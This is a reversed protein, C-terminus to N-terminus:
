IHGSFCSHWAAQSCNQIRGEKLPRTFWELLVLNLIHFVNRYLCESLTDTDRYTFFSFDTLVVEDMSLKERMFQGLYLHYADLANELHEKQVIGTRALDMSAFSVAGLPSIASLSVTLDQKRRVQNRREELLLGRLRPYYETEHRAPEKRSVLQWERRLEKSMSSWGEPWSLGHRRGFRASLSEGEAWEAKMELLIKNTQREQEYISDVPELSQAARMQCLLRM